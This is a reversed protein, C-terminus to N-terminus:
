EAKLLAAFGPCDMYAFAPRNSLSNTPITRRYATCSLLGVPDVPFDIM